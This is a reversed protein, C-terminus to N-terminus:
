LYRMVRKLKNYDDRNPSKVHTCLFGVATQIDPRAQKSLFLLKAVNTHFMDKTEQDLLELNSTNVEFLCNAAPTAAVGDMDDPLDDLMNAIYDSMTIRVKGPTSYDLTMGLYDHVKGRTVTLPSLAGFELNLQEIVGTVVDPSVHSIKLDDVHWVITCQKGDIVKNAVCWDYPNIVYGWEQLKSSLLKWFLLAAQLTGYLAKKLRVYLVMKGKEWTVCSSYRDPDIKILLKAMKGVLCVRVEADMDAHMFAGPVDVTAVDRGEKADIVCSLFLVETSVTPL